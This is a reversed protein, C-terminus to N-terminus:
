GVVQEHKGQLPGTATCGGEKNTPARHAVDGTPVAKRIAVPGVVLKPTRAAVRDALVTNM